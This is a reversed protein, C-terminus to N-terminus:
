PLAHRDADQKRVEDMFPISMIRHDLVYRLHERLIREAQRLTDDSARLGEVAPWDSRAIHRLLKITAVGAPLVIGKAGPRCKPCRLGGRETSFVHDAPELTDGCEACRGLEPMFGSTQLLRVEYWRALLAISSTTQLLGLTRLLLRFVVHAPADEVSFQEALEAVYMGASLRGLDDRLVRFSEISEVQGVSYLSKGENLSLSVHRLLDLHGGLKSTIKRAGKAVARVLGRDPTLLTLLRDAEGM